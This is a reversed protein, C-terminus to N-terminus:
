MFESVDYGAQALSMLYDHLYDESTYARPEPPPSEYRQAPTPPARHGELTPEPKAVPEPQAPPTEVKQEALTTMLQELVNVLKKQDEKLAIVEKSLEEFKIKHDEVARVVHSQGELVAEADSSPHMPPAELVASAPKVAPPVVELFSAQPQPSGLLGFGNLLSDTQPRAPPPTGGLLMQVWGGGIMSRKPAEPDVQLRRRLEGFDVDEGDDGGDTVEEVADPLASESEDSVSVGSEEGDAEPSSPEADPTVPVPSDADQLDAEAPAAAEEAPAAAEEDGGENILAPEEGDAEAPAAAEDPDGEFSAPAQPSAEAPAAAENMFIDDHPPAATEPGAPPAAEEMFIDDHPPAATEPGAPPAAEQITPETPGPNTEAVEPPPAAATFVPINPRILPPAVNLVGPQWLRVRYQRIPPPAWMYKTKHHKEVKVPQEITEGGEDIIAVETKITPVKVESVKYEPLKVEPLKLEPLKFLGGFVDSFKPLKIEPLKFFPKESADDYTNVAVVSQMPPAGFEPGALTPQVGAYGPGEVTQVVEVGSPVFQVAQQVFPAEAQLLPAGSQVFPFGPQAFAPEAQVVGPPPFPFAPQGFPPEAQIVGPPPFPFGPQPLPPEPQAFPVGTQVFPVGTQVVPTEAQIAPVNYQAQPVTVDLFPLFPAAMPVDHHKSHKGRSVSHKSLPVDVKVGQKVFPAPHFIPSDVIEYGMDDAYQPPVLPMMTIYEEDDKDDDRMATMLLPLMTTLDGGGSLAAVMLPLTEM